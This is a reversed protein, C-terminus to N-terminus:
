SIKSFGDRRWESHGFCHFPTQSIQDFKYGMSVIKRSVGIESGICEGKNTGIPFGGLSRMINGPIAWMLSRLHRGTIGPDIGSVKLFNLYSDVRGAPVGDIFHDAAIHNYQSNKLADWPFNWRENVTEGLMGLKSDQNFRSALAHVFNNNKLFCEDQLFIYLDEYPFERFGRDWAGINMGINQNYILPIDLDFKPLNKSSDSNAVVVTSNKHIKISRLLALLRQNERACYFSIIIKFKKMKYCINRFWIFIKLKHQYYSGIKGIQTCKKALEM